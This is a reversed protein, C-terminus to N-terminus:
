PFRGSLQARIPTNQGMATELKRGIDARAAEQYNASGGRAVAGAPTREAWIMFWVVADAKM